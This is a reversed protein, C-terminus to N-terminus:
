YCLEAAGPENGATNVKGGAPVPPAASTHDIFSPWLPLRKM